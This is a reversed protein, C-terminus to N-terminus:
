TPESPRWEEQYGPRDAYPQALLKVVVELASARDAASQAHEYDDDDDTAWLEYEDLIRLKAAADDRWFEASEIGAGSDILNQAEDRAGELIPRLWAIQDDMGPM